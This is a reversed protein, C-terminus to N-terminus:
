RISSFLSHSLNTVFSTRLSELSVENKFTKKSEETTFVFTTASLGAAVIILVALVLSKSWRVAMHERHAFTQAEDTESTDMVNGSTGEDNTSDLSGSSSDDVTEIKSKKM